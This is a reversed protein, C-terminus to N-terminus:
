KTWDNWLHAHFRNDLGPPVEDEKLGEGMREKKEGKRKDRVEWLLITPIMIISLLAKSLLSNM